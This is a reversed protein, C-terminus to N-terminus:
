VVFSNLVKKKNKLPIKKKPSSLLLKHPVFRTAHSHVRNHIEQSPAITGVATASVYCFWWNSNFYKVFDYSHPPPFSDLASLIFMFAKPLFSFQKQALLTFPTLNCVPTLNYVIFSFCFFFPLLSLHRTNNKEPLIQKKKWFFFFPARMSNGRCAKKRKHAEDNKIHYM